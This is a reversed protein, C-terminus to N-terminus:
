VRGPQYRKSISANAMMEERNERIIQKEEENTL